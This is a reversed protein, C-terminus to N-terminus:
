ISGSYSLLTHYTGDPMKYCVSWASANNLDLVAVSETDSKRKLPQYENGVLVLLTTGESHQFEFRSASGVSDRHLPAQAVRIKADRALYARPLQAENVKSLVKLVEQATFGLDLLHLTNPHTQNFAQLTMGEVPLLQGRSDAQWHSFRLTEPDALLFRYNKERKFNWENFNVTGAGWTTDVVKYENGILVRNWAHNVTAPSDDKSPTRGLVVESRVGVSQAMENFLTAFDLCLGRRSALTETSQKAILQGTRLRAVDYDIHTTIWEFLATVKAADSHLHGAVAQAVAAVSKQHQVSYAPLGEQSFALRSGLGSFLALLLTIRVVHLIFGSAM